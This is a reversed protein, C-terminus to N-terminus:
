KINGGSGQEQEVQQQEQEQQKEERKLDKEQRRKAKDHEKYYQKDAHQKLQKKYQKYDKKGYEVGNDKRMMRKIDQHVNSRTSFSPKESKHKKVTKQEQLKEDLVKEESPSEEPPNTKPPNIKYNFYSKKNKKGSSLPYAQRQKGRGKTRFEPM